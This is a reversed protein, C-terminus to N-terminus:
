IVSRLKKQLDVISSRDNLGDSRVRSLLRIDSTMRAILKRSMQNAAALLAKQENTADYCHVMVSNGSLVTCNYKGDPNKVVGVVINTNPTSLALAMDRVHKQLKISSLSSANGKNPVKVSRPAKPKECKGGDM